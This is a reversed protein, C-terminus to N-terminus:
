PRKAWRKSGWDFQGDIDINLPRNAVMKVDIAPPLAPSILNMYTSLREIPQMLHFRDPRSEDGQPEPIMKAFVHRAENDIVDVTGKTNSCRCYGATM